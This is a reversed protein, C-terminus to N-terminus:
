GELGLVATWPLALDPDAVAQTGLIHLTARCGDPFCGKVILKGGYRRRGDSMEKISRDHDDCLSRTPVEM